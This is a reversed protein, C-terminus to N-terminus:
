VLSVQNQFRCLKRALEESANGQDSWWWLNFGHWTSGDELTVKLRRHDEGWEYEQVKLEPEPLVDLAERREVHKVVQMGFNALLLGAILVLLFINM